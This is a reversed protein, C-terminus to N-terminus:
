QQNAGQPATQSAIMPNMPNNEQSSEAQEASSVFLDCVGAPSIPGAVLACSSPPQFSVCGQCTVNPDSAPAYHVADQPQKGDLSVEMRHRAAHGSPGFDLAGNPKAPTGGKNISKPAPKPDTM